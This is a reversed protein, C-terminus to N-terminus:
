VCQVSKKGFGDWDGWVNWIAPWHTRRKLSLIFFLLCVLSCLLSRKRPYELWHILHLHSLQSLSACTIPTFHDLSMQHFPPPLVSFLVFVFDSGSMFDNFILTHSSSDEQPWRPVSKTPAFIGGKKGGGWPFSPPNPRQGAGWIAGAGRTPSLSDSKGALRPLRWDTRTERCLGKALLYRCSLFPWTSGSSRVNFWPGDTIKCCLTDSWLHSYILMWHWVAYWSFM